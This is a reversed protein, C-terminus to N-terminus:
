RLLTLWEHQPYHDSVYTRITTRQAADLKPWTRELDARDKPRAQKVKFILVFEPNLYRVGDDAIWTVEDLPAIMSRDRRNVWAGDQGPNLLLDILWPSRADARLWVQDASDAVDPFRDDVPRIGDPGASWIHLRGQAATRLAPLDARFMAVDIDSHERRTGTFADIAWGGAVWWPAAIDGLIEGVDTPTVSAWSGRLNRFEAEAADRPPSIPFERM